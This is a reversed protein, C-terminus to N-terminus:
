AFGRRVLTQIFDRIVDEIRESAHYNNTLIYLAVNDRAADFERAFAELLFRWGKREEWKFISLFAFTEDGESDAPADRAESSPTAQQTDAAHKDARRRHRRRNSGGPLAFPFDPSARARAPDFFDVDVSEGVVFVRSPAVGGAVFIDRHFATPM